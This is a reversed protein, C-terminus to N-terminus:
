ALREIQLFGQAPLVGADVFLSLSEGAEAYIISDLSLTAPHSANLDSSTASRIVAFPYAASGGAATRNIRLRANDGWPDSVTAVIFQVRYWGDTQIVRDGFGNAVVDDSSIRLTGPNLSVITGIVSSTMQTDGAWQARSLATGVGAPGQPGADGQDGKPGQPGQPGILGQMGM